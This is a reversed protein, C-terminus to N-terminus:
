TDLTPEPVLYLQELTWEIHPARLRVLVGTRKQDPPCDGCAYEGCCDPCEVSLSVRKIRSVQVDCPPIRDRLENNVLVILKTSLERAAGNPVPRDSGVEYGGTLIEVDEINPFLAVVEREIRDGLPYGNVVAARLDESGCDRAWAEWSRRSAQALVEHAAEAKEAREARARVGQAQGELWSEYVGRRREYECAIEDRRHSKAWDDPRSVWWRRDIDRSFNKPEKEEIWKTIKAEVAITEARYSEEVADVLRGFLVSHDEDPSGAVPALVGGGGIIRPSLWVLEGCSSKGSWLSVKAHSWRRRIVPPVSEMPVEVQIEPPVIIGSEEWAERIVEEAVAFIFTMKEM